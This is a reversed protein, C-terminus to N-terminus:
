TMGRLLWGLAMGFLFIILMVAIGLWWGDDLDDLEPPRPGLSNM